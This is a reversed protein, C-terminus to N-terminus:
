PFATIERKVYHWCQCSKTIVPRVSSSGNWNEGVTQLLSVAKSAARQTLHIDTPDVQERAALSLGFCVTIVLPYAALGPGKSEMTDLISCKQARRSDQAVAILSSPGPTLYIAPLPGANVAGIENTQITPSACIQTDAV